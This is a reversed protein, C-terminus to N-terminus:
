PKAALAAVAEEQTAIIRFVKDLRTLRVLNVVTPCLGCLAMDGGPPLLKFLGVMAGLGSSDVFEVESLDLVFRSTGSDLHAKLQSKFDGIGHVDMRSDLVQAVLVGRVTLFELNM